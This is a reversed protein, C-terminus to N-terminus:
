GRRASRRCLCGPCRQLGGWAHEGRQGCGGETGDVGVPFAAALFQGAAWAAGGSGAWVAGEHGAGVLVAPVIVPEAFRQAGVAVVVGARHQEVGACWLQPPAEGDGQAPGEGALGPEGALREGGLHPEGVGLDGFVLAASDDVEM